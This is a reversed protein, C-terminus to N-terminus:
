GHVLRLRGHGRVTYGRWGKFDDGSICANSSDFVRIKKGGCVEGTNNGSGESHRDELFTLTYAGANDWKLHGGSPNVQCGWGQKDSHTWVKPEPKNCDPDKVLELSWKPPDAASALAAFALPLFAFSRMKNISLITTPKHNTTSPPNTRILLPNQQLNKYGDKGSNNIRAYPTRLVHRINCVHNM